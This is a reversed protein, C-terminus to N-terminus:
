LNKLLNESPSRIKKLADKIRDVKIRIGELRSQLISIASELDEVEELVSRIRTLLAEPASVMSIYEKAEAIEKLRMIETLSRSPDAVINKALLILESGNIVARRLKELAERPISAEGTEKSITEGFDDLPEVVSRYVKEITLHKEPKLTLMNEKMRYALDKLENISAEAKGRVESLSAKQFVTNDIIELTVKQALKEFSEIQNNLEDHIRM